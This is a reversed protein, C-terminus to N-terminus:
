SQCVPCWYATRNDDGQGRSSIRNGCRPCGGSRNARYIARPRRGKAISVRMVREVEAVVLELEDAGLDSVQRWPSVGADFLAEVRIANGVGAVIEQDLLADGIERGAGLRRLRGVAEARDFGPRLPDPGLRRLGPDNRLRSESVIRLIKGGNQAAIARGAAMRLWPRGYPLRGDATVFWRGNMGLHSHLALENSFHAVLHKGFAEVGEITNGQLERARNHVPSRPNPADALELQKGALAATMRRAARHITDGEPV